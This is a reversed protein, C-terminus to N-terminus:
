DPIEEVPEDFFIDEDEYEFIEPFPDFDEFEYYNNYEDELTTEISEELDIVEESDEYIEILEEKSNESVEVSKEEKKSNEPVKSTKPEEKSSESVESSKEAEFGKSVENEAASPRYIVKKLDKTYVAGALSTYVPNSKNVEINGTFGDFAHEEIETVTSPLYINRVSSGYFTNNKIKATNESWYLNDIITKYFAQEEIQKVTSPIYLNTISPADDRETNLFEKTHIVSMGEPLHLNKFHNHSFLGGFNCSIKANPNKLELRLNDFYFQDFNYMLGGNFKFESLKTINDGNFLIHYELNDNGINPYIKDPMDYDYIVTINRLSADYQFIDLGFYTYKEPMVIKTLNKCEGFAYDEIELLNPFLEQLDLEKLDTNYFARQRIYKVNKGGSVSTLNEMDMCFSSPIDTIYDPFQISEIGSIPPCLEGWQYYERLLYKDMSTVPIMKGNYEVLSPLVINKENGHYETLMAEDSNYFVRLKYKGDQTTVNAYTTYDRIGFSEEHVPVYVTSTVTSPQHVESKEYIISPEYVVSTDVIRVISPEAETVQTNAEPPLDAIPAVSSIIGVCAAITVASTAVSLKTAVTNSIHTGVTNAVGASAATGISSLSNTANAAQVFSNLGTSLSQSINASVQVTQSASNLIEPLNGFIDLTHLRIGYKQEVQTIEDELKKKAANLRSKVTNINIDLADAIEIYSMDSYFRMLIVQRYKEPLNLVIEKIINKEDQKDIKELPLIDIYEGQETSFLSENEDIDLSETKHRTNKRMFMCCENVVVKRLWAHFAEPNQVTNIKTFIKLFIEQMVDEVDQETFNKLTAKTIAYVEQQCESIIQKVASSDGNKADIIMQNSIM